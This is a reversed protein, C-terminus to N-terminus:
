VARPAQRVWACKVRFPRHHVRGANQHNVPSKCADVRTYLLRHGHYTLGSPPKLQFM